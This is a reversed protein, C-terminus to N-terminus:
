GNKSRVNKNSSLLMDHMAKKVPTNFTRFTLQVDARMPFGDKDLMTSFRPSVRTVLVKNFKIFKGITINIEESGAGFELHKGIDGIPNPGPPSLLGTVGVIGDDAAYSPLAMKMLTRVQDVVLTSAEGPNEAIFILPLSVVIPSSGTWVSVTMWQTITSFNAAAMLTNIERMGGGILPNDWDSVIEFEIEEPVWSTIVGSKKSEIKVKFKDNISDPM